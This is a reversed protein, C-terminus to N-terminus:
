SCQWSGARLHVRFETTSKGCEFKKHENFKVVMVKDQSFDLLVCDFFCFSSFRGFALNKKTFILKYIEHLFDFSM